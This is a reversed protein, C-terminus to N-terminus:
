YSILLIKMIRISKLNSLNEKYERACFAQRMQKMIRISKLNSLNEKYERACFAQRMQANSPLKEVPRYEGWDNKETAVKISETTTVIEYIDDDTLRAAVEVNPDIAMLNM